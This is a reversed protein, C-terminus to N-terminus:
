SLLIDDPTIRADDIPIPVVFGSVDNWIPVALVNPTGIFPCIKATVPIPETPITVVIGLACKSISHVNLVLITLSTTSVSEIADFTTVISREFDCFKKNDAVASTFEKVIMLGGVSVLEKVIFIVYVAANPTPILVKVVPPPGGIVTLQDPPPTIGIIVGVAFM